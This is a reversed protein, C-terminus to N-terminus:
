PLCADFYHSLKEAELTYKEYAEKPLPTRKILEKISDTHNFSSINQYSTTSLSTYCYKVMATSINAYLCLKFTQNPLLKCKQIQNRLYEMEPVLCSNYLLPLKPKHLDYIYWSELIAIFATGRIRYNINNWTRVTNKSKERFFNLSPCSLMTDSCLKYYESKDTSMHIKNEDQLSPISNVFKKLSVTLIEQYQILDPTANFLSFLNTCYVGILTDLTNLFFCTLDITNILDPSNTICSYAEEILMMIQSKSPEILMSNAIHFFCKDLKSHTNIQTSPYKILGAIKEAYNVIGNQIYYDHILYMLDQWDEFYSSTKKQGPNNSPDVDNYLTRVFVFLIDSVYPASLTMDYAQLFDKLNSCLGRYDNDKSSPNEAAIIAHCILPTIQVADDTLLLLGLESLSVLCKKYTPICNYLIEHIFALPIPSWGFCCLMKLVRKEEEYRGAIDFFDMYIYKIHGILDLTKNDHISKYTFNGEEEFEMRNSLVDMQTFVQRLADSPCVSASPSKKVLTKCQHAILSVMLVNGQTLRLLQSKNQGSGLVIESHHEFVKQLESDSLHSMEFNYFSNSHIVCTTIVIVKVAFSALLQLEKPFGSLLYMNDIILLSQKYALDMLDNCSTHPCEGYSDDAFRITQLTSELNDQYYIYCYDKPNYKYLYYQVFHSKGAGYQDSIIIKSHKKFAEDLAEADKERGVTYEATAPKMKQNKYSAFCRERKETICETFLYLLLSESDNGKPASGLYREYIEKIGHEDKLIAEKIQRAKQPYNKYYNSILTELRLKRSSELILPYSDKFISRLKKRGSIISAINTNKPFAKANTSEGFPSVNILYYLFIDDSLVKKPFKTELLKYLDKFLKANM